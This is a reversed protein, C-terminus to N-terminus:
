TFFHSHRISLFYYLQELLFTKSAPSLKPIFFILLFLTFLTFVFKLNLITVAKTSSYGKQTIEYRIAMIKRAESIDASNIKYKEKMKFFAQEATMDETMNNAKKWALLNDGELTFIYPDIKIPFSDPYSVEYKELVQIM